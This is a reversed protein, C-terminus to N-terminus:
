FTHGDGAPKRQPLNLVVPVWTVYGRWLDMPRAAPPPHEEAQLRKPDARLVPEEVLGSGPRTAFVPALRPDEGHLLQEQVLPPQKSLLCLCVVFVSLCVFVCLRLCLFVCACVCVACLVCCVACLVCCVACLVCWDCVCVGRVCVCVCLCVSACVRLREFM